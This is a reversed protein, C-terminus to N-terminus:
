LWQEVNEWFEDIPWYGFDSGDGIHTTFTLGEPSYKDLIDCCEEYLSYADDSQWFADDEDELALLFLARHIPHDSSEKKMRKFEPTDKIAEFFTDILHPVCLTGHILTGEKPAHITVGTKDDVFSQSNNIHM